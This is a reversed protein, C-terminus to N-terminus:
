YTYLSTNAKDIHIEGGPLLKTDSKYITDVDLFQSM